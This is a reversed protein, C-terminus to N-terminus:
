KGWGVAGTSMPQILGGAMEASSRGFRTSVSEGETKAVTAQLDALQKIFEVSSMPYELQRKLFDGIAAHHRMLSPAYAIILDFYKRADEPKRRVEPYRQQLEKFMRNAQFRQYAGGIGRAGAGIALSSATLGAGIGLAWPIATRLKQPAFPPPMAAQKKLFHRLAQHASVKKMNPVGGPPVPATVKKSGARQQAMYNKTKDMVDPASLAAQFAVMKVGM